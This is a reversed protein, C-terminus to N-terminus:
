LDRSLFLISVAKLLLYSKAKVQSIRFVDRLNESSNAVKSALVIREDKKWGFVSSLACSFM